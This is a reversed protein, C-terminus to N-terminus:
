AKKTMKYIKRGAIYIVVVAIFSIEIVKVVHSVHTISQSAFYGFSILMAVWVLVAIGNYIFFKRFPLGNMGCRVLTARHIGVLGYMFKTLFIAKFPHALVHVNAKKTVKEVWAIWTHDKDKLHVGFRYWLWDNIFGLVICLSIGWFIPMLELHILVGVFVITADAELFILGAILALFPILPLNTAALLTAHM